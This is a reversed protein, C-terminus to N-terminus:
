MPRPITSAAFVLITEASARASISVAKCRSGASCSTIGCAYRTCICLCHHRSDLEDEQKTSRQRPLSPKITLSCIRNGANVTQSTAFEFFKWVIERRRNRLLSAIAPIPLLSIKGERAHPKLASAAASLCGPTRKWGNGAEAVPIVHLCTL